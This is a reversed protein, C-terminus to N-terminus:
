KTTTTEEETTTATPKSPPADGSSSTTTAQEPATAADLMGAFLAKLNRWDNQSLRHDVDVLRWDHAWRLDPRVDVHRAFTFTTSEREPLAFTADAVLFAKFKQQSKDSALDSPLPFANGRRRFAQVLDTDDQLFPATVNAFFVGHNREYASLSGDDDRASEYAYLPRSLALDAILKFVGSLLDEQRRTALDKDEVTAVLVFMARTLKVDTATATPLREDKLIEFLSPSLAEEAKFWEKLAPPPSAAATTEGSAASSAEEATVATVAAAGGDAAAAAKATVDSEEEGSSLWGSVVARAQTAGALFDPLSQEEPRPGFDMAAASRREFGLDAFYRDFKASQAKEYAAVEAPSKDTLGLLHALMEFFSPLEDSPERGVSQGFFAFPSMTNLKKWAFGAEAATM